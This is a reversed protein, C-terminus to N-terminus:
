SNFSHTRSPQRTRPRNKFWSPPLRRHTFSLTTDYKLQSVLSSNLSKKEAETLNLRPATGRKEEPALCGQKSWDSIQTLDQATTKKVSLGEHCSACNLSEALQKGRSFDGPPFESPDPTHEGTSTKTLYAALAHSEDDSFGFQPM